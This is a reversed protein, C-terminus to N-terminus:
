AKALVILSSTNISTKNKERFLDSYDFPPTSSTMNNIAQGTDGLTPSAPLL